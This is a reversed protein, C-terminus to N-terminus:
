INFLSIDQNFGVKKPQIKQYTRFTQILSIVTVQHAIWLVVKAKSSLLPLAFASPFFDPTVPIWTPSSLPPPLLLGSFHNTRCKWTLQYSKNISQIHTTFSLPWPHCWPKPASCHSYLQWQDGPPCNLTLKQWNNLHKNYISISIILISSSWFLHTILNYKPTMLMYINLAM